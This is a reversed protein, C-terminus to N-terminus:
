TEQAAKRRAFTLLGPILAQATLGILFASAVMTAPSAVLAGDAVTNIFARIGAEALHATYGATLTSSLLTWLRRWVSMVGLYSLSALAGAFGALLVEYSLGTAIGAVTITTAALAHTASTAHDM